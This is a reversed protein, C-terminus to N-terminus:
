SFSLLLNIDIVKLGLREALRPNVVRGRYTIIGPRLGSDIKLANELGQGRGVLRGILPILENTLAMATTRPVAGAANIYCARPSNSDM